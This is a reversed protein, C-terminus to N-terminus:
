AVERVREEETKALVFAGVFNTFAPPIAERLEDRTMWEIGMARRAQAVGTFNGVVQIIEGPKPARGMKCQPKDHPQHAPQRVACNSEFLRHRYLDLGFMRGCLMVPSQMPAGPVNEIAYPRGLARLAARTPTLLDPHLRRQIRQAQTFAQCPPSAHFADFEKAIEKLVTLADGQVFTFPFHPQPVIDVGVVDFGALHYGMAAGGAGCYLDLLKPRRTM